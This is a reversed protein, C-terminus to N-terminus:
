SSSGGDPGYFGCKFCRSFLLSSFLSTLACHFSWLYLLSIFLTEFDGHAEVALLSEEATIPGPTAKSGLAVVLVSHAFGAAHFEDVVCLVDLGDALKALLDLGLVASAVRLYLTNVPPAAFSADHFSGHLFRLGHDLIEFLFDALQLMLSLQFLSGNALSCSWPYIRPGFNSHLM